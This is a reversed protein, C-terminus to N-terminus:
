RVKTIARGMMGMGYGHGLPGEGQGGHMARLTLAEHGGPGLGKEETKEKLEGLVLPLSRFFFTLGGLQGSNIKVKNLKLVWLRDLDAAASERRRRLSVRSSSLSVPESSPLSALIM